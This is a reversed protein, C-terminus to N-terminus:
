PMVEMVKIEIWAGRAPPSRRHYRCTQQLLMEIWAGRAPPSMDGGGKGYWMHFKM